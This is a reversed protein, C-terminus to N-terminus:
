CIRSYAPACPSRSRRDKSRSRSHSRLNQTCGMEPLLHNSILEFQPLKKHTIIIIEYGHHLCFHWFNQEARPMKHQTNPSSKRCDPIFHLWLWYSLLLLSVVYLRKSTLNRLTSKRFGKLQDTIRLNGSVDADQLYRRKGRSSVAWKKAHHKRSWEPKKQTNESNM